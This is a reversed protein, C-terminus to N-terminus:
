GTTLKALLKAAETMEDINTSKSELAKVLSQAESRIVLDGNNKFIHHAAERLRDDSDPSILVRLVAPAAKAGLRALADAAAWRVGFDDDSLVRILADIAEQSGSEELFRIADNRVLEDQNVDELVAIAQEISEFQNSM